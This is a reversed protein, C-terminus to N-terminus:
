LLATLSVAAAYTAFSAAILFAWQAAAVLIAKTRVASELSNTAHFWYRSIDSYLLATRAKAQGSAIADDILRRVYTGRLRGHFSRVRASAACLGITLLLLLLSAVTAVAARPDLKGPELRSFAFVAAVFVGAAGTLATSKADLARFRFTVADYEKESTDACLKELLVLDEATTAPLRSTTREFM